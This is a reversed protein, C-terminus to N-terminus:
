FLKGKENNEAKKKIKKNKVLFMLIYKQNIVFMIKIDRLNWSFPQYKGQRLPLPTLTTFTIIIIHYSMNIM